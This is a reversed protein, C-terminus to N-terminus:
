LVYIYILGKSQDPKSLLDELPTKNPKTLKAGQYSSVYSM